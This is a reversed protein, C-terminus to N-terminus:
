NPYSIIRSALDRLQIPQLGMVYENFEMWTFRKVQNSEIRVEYM